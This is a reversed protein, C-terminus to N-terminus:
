KSRRKNWDINEVSSWFSPMDAKVSFRVGCKVFVFLYTLVAYPLQRLTQKPTYACNLNRQMSLVCSSIIALVDDAFFHTRLISRLVAILLFRRVDTRVVRRATSSAIVAPSWFNAESASILASGAIIRATPLPM